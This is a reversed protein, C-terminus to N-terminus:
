PSMQFHVGSVSFMHMIDDNLRMRWWTNRGWHKRWMSARRRLIRWLSLLLLIGGM